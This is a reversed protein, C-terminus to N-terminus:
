SQNRGDASPSLLSVTTSTTSGFVSTSVVKEMLAEVACESETEPQDFGGFASRRWSRDLGVSARRLKIEIFREYLLALLVFFVTHAAAFYLM